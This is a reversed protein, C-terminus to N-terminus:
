PRYKDQVVQNVRLHESYTLINFEKLINNVKVDPHRSEITAWNEPHYIKIKIKRGYKKRIDDFKRVYPWIHIFVKEKKRSNSALRGGVLEFQVDSIKYHSAQLENFKLGREDAFDRCTSM